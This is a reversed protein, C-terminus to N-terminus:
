RSIRPVPLSVMEQETHPGNSFLITQIKKRDHKSIRRLQGNRVDVSMCHMPRETTRQRNMEDEPVAALSLSLM